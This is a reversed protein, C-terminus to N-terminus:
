CWIALSPNTLSPSTYEGACFQSFPDCEDAVFLRPYHAVLQVSSEGGEDVLLESDNFNGSRGQLDDEDWKIGQGSGITTLSVSATRELFPSPWACTFYEVIELVPRVMANLSLYNVVVRVVTDRGTSKTVTVDLQPPPQGTSCSEEGGYGEVLVSVACSARVGPRGSRLASDRANRGLDGLDFLDLRHLKIQIFQEGERLSSMEVTVRFRALDYSFILPRHVATSRPPTSAVLEEAGDNRHLTLRLGDLNFSFDLLVSNEKDGNATIPTSGNGHEKRKM